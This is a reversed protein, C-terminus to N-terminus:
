KLDLEIGVVGFREQEEKSYYSEMDTFSASDINEDTYGCKLLPLVSYLRDFSEFLHLAAVEASVTEGNATNTFVISDGVKIKSRKEDWLRLEITKQGSKIMEFPEPNLNMKHAQFEGSDFAASENQASLEMRIKPLNWLYLTALVRLTIIVIMGVITPIAISVTKLRIMYYLASGALSALAYIHKKFIYPMNETFIDRMVGGGVGTLVGLIIALIPNSWLSNAFAIEVGMVSFAALGIADFYNNVREVREDIKKFKNRCVYAVVFVIASVACAIILIYARTFVAPPTRGILIDRTIGGGVATVAGVVIVGFIDFGAKIAILAGSVAFAVTGIIEIISLIIETTM